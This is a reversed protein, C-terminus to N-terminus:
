RCLARGAPARPLRGYGQGAGHDLALGRAGSTGSAARSGAQHQGRRPWWSVPRPAKVHGAGDGETRAGGGDTSRKVSGRHNAPRNLLTESRVM